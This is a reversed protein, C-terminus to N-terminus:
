SAKRIYSQLSNKLFLVCCGKWLCTPAEGLVLVVSHCFSTVKLERAGAQYVPGLCSFHDVDPHDQCPSHPHSTLRIVVKTGMRTALFM